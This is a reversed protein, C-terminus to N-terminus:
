LEDLEDLEDLDDEDDDDGDEELVKSLLTGDEAIEIEYEKAGFEVEAEYVVSDGETEKEVEEIEGGRAEQSSGPASARRLGAQQRLRAPRGRETWDVSDRAM